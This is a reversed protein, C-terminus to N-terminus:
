RENPAHISRKLTNKLRQAFEAAVALYLIELLKAFLNTDVGSCKMM